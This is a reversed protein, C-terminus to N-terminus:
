FVYRVGIKFENKDAVDVGGVIGYHRRFMVGGRVEGSIRYDQNVLADCTLFFDVLKAKASVTFEKPRTQLYYSYLIGRYTMGLDFPIFVRQGYVNIPLSDQVLKVRTPIDGIPTTKDIILTDTESIFVTDHIISTDSIFERVMVTDITAVPVPKKGCQWTAMSGLLFFVLAVVVYSIVAKM